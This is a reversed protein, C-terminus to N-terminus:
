NQRRTPKRRTRTSKKASLSSSVMVQMQFCDHCLVFICTGDPKNQDAGSMSANKQAHLCVWGPTKVSPRVEREIGNKSLSSVFEIDCRACHRGSLYFGSRCYYPNTEKVLDDITLFHDLKPTLHCLFSSAKAPAQENTKEVLITIVNEDQYEETAANEENLIDSNAKKESNGPEQLEQLGSNGHEHPELEADSITEQDSNVSEQLEQEGDNCQERPQELEDSIAEQDIDVSEQLEQEGDNCQEHPQELEDSIAEQDSDVSEQLEQEGDNRQEHPQELEDRIMSEHDSDVSEQLEQEGDDNCQEHPQELEDRIMSEHDSDVSEQLEQEGDNGQERPQELEDRIM